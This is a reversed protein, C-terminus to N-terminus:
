RKTTSTSEMTLDLKGPLEMGNVSFTLPGVIRITNSGEVTDGTARDFLFSGVSQEVKLDSSVVKLPIPSDPGLAYKVSAMFIGIKDLTKGDKEVTGQYEYYTEFTLTQGAGIDSVESRMWRDGKKVPGDPLRALEQKAERKMKEVSFQQKVTEAAAPPAAAIIKDVGEVSAIQNDKGYVVTYTSGAVAHLGDLVPQLAANDTKATEPKASDFGVAMGGPLALKFVFAQNKKEVRVSGDAARPSITERDMSKADADTPVEMGAITLLQHVHTVTQTTRVGETLKNELQTQAHAAVALTLVLLPCALALRKM